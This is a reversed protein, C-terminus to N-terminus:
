KFELGQLIGDARLQRNWCNMAFMGIKMSLGWPATMSRYLMELLTVDEPLLYAFEPDSVQM